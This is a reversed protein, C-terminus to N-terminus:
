FFETESKKCNFKADNLLSMYSEFNSYDELHLYNFCNLNSEKVELTDEFVFIGESNVDEDNHYRAVRDDGNFEVINSYKDVLNCFRASLKGDIIKFIYEYYCESSTNYTCIYIGDNKNINNKEYNESDVFFYNYTIASMFIVLVIILILVIKDKM